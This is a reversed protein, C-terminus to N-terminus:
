EHPEALLQPVGVQDLQLSSLILSAMQQFGKSSPAQGEATWWSEDCKREWHSWHDILPVGAELSCARIAELRILWDPSNMNGAVTRPPLNVAVMAGMAHLQNMCHHFQREFQLSSEAIESLERLGFTLFVLDPLIAEAKELLPLVAERLRLGPEEISIFMDSQRRGRVHLQERFPSGWGGLPEGTESEQRVSQLSDGALLWNLRPSSQLRLPLNGLEDLQDARDIEGEFLEPNSFAAEAEMANFPVSDFEPLHDGPFPLSGNVEATTAAEGFKLASDGSQSDLLLILRRRRASSRSNRRSSASM